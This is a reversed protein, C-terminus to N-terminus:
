RGERADRRTVLLHPHRSGDLYGFRFPLKRAPQSSWLKRMAVNHQYSAKLLSRDFSGYTEQALGAETALDAPIGTSDSLMFRAHTLLYGRITSFADSWLLYSAAKTLAAVDGKKALHAVVGPTTALSEDSLNAAVHRHIRLPATPDGAKRFGIEANAFAESFDPPTWTWKRHEALDTEMAAIESAELYHIAGDSRLEFYRLSVPEFGHVALAVLFFSLEGPIDGRQTRKLTESKSYDDVVLLEGLEARLKKLSVALMGKDLDDIRRPDGVLELSVTTVERADPYATLATVLDGGSFPYVVTTPLDTPELAALFPKAVDVYRKKYQEIKPTLEKCHADVTAADIGAPLPEDGACAVVRYLLRVEKAYDAGGTPNEPRDLLPPAPTPPAASPPLTAVVGDDARQRARLTARTPASACAVVALSSSLLSALAIAKTRFRM